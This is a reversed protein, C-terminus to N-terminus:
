QSRRARSSCVTRVVATDRRAQRVGRRSLGPGSSDADARSAFPERVGPEGTANEDPIKAACHQVTEANKFTVIGTFSVMHGMGFVEQAQELTGGFCHFVARLKGTHPKLQELTDAMDHLEPMSKRKLEAINV